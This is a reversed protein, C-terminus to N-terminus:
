GLAGRWREALAAFTRRSRDVEQTNRQALVSRSRTLGCEGVTLKELEGDVKDQSEPAESPRPDLQHTLRLALLTINPALVRGSARSVM